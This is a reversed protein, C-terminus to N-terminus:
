AGGTRSALTAAQHDRKALTLWVVIGSAGSLVLVALNSGRWDLVALMPAPLFAGATACAAIVTDNIGQWRHKHTEGVSQSLLAGGGVYTFNWGLGLFILAAVM